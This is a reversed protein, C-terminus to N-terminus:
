DTTPQSTTPRSEKILPQIQPETYMEPISEPTAVMEKIRRWLYARISIYDPHSKVDYTWRPRPLSIDIVEKVTSPRPGLLVIRDALLVAEDLSHTVFIVTTKKQSWIKLLELQMIERIQADLSAFPEDMLLIEPDMALARALGVRQQMGGSLEHPYSHEFGTLGVLKAYELARAMRKEKHLGQIALPFAINELVNKWPLLRFSQFVVGKDPGPASPSRGNISIRGADPQILGDILRLLTTKGCGSPGVIVVFEKDSVTFSLDEVIKLLKFKGGDRRYFSKNVSDVEVKYLLNDSGM